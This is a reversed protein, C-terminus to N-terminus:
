WWADEWENSTISTLAEAAAAASTPPLSENLLLTAVQCSLRKFAAYQPHSSGKWQLPDNTEITERLHQYAQRFKGLSELDPKPLRRETSLKVFVSETGAEATAARKLLEWRLEASVGSNFASNWLKWIAFFEGYLRYFENAASLAMERRKQRLGWYTVLRQGVLVALVATLVPPVAAVVLKLWFECDTVV